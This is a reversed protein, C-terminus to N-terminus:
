DPYRVNHESPRWVRTRTPRSVPSETPSGAQSTRTPQSTRVPPEPSSIAQESEQEAAATISGSRRSRVPAAYSPSSSHASAAGMRAATFVTAIASGIGLAAGGVKRWGGRESADPEAAPEVDPTPSKGGDAAGSDRAAAAHAWAKQWCTLERDVDVDVYDANLKLLALGLPVVADVFDLTPFVQGLLYRSVSSKTVKAAAAMAANSLHAQQRLLTALAFVFAQRDCEPKPRIPRKLGRMPIGRRREDECARIVRCVRGHHEDM